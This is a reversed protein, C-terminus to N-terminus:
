RGIGASVAIGILEASTEVGLGGMMRYKHYEVTKPSLGLQEAIARASEGSVLLRLISRQRDTLRAVRARAVVGNGIIGQLIAGALTPSMWRGGDAVERVAQFVDVSPGSKVVYGHVGREIAQTVFEDEQELTLLIALPHHGGKRIRDVADLANLKPLAYDTVVLDPRTRLALEVLEEGDCATGVIDVASSIVKTLGELYIQYGDALVARLLREPVPSAKM